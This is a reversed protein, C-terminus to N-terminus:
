KLSPATSPNFAIKTNGKRNPQNPNPAGVFRIGEAIRVLHGDASETDHRAPLRPAPMPANFGKNSGQTRNAM